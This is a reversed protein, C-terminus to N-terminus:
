AHTRVLHEIRALLDAQDFESKVIYGQAGVQEGRMRDTAASRSTVLIAPIDRLNSDARIREVFTFGDIGPMEVDVLILAYRKRKAAELGEEGSVATDVHYGASELISQELMRTTLSDDIVLVSTPRPAETPEIMRERHAAVVLEEPDLVLEPNGLPDFAAGVVIRDVGVSEPVSRVIVPRTGLLRDVAIAAQRGGAEIVIAVCTGRQRTARERRLLSALRVIPIMTGDYMVNESHATRSVESETLRRCARVADLPLAASTGAADVALAEVSALSVPVNIELTTGVNPVTEIRVEGGLKEVAVRLVDLGIGRGAVETVKSTTSIGGRLLVTLLAAADATEPVATGRARAARRIADLDLGRGDDRCTFVARKGRRAVDVVVRGASPKRAALREREPEIGHAVANRVLQVLAGQIIALVHADLRVEGGHAEFTVQKSLAQAADRATRELMTFVTAVPILRLQEATERVQALERSAHELGVSLERHSRRIVERLEELTARSQSGALLLDVLRQAKDLQQAPEHLAGIRANTEVLGELLADMDGLEARVVVPTEERVPAPAGPLAIAALQKAIDDILALMGTVRAADPRAHGDRVPALLDEIAHARDAIGTQRVVRAAGKLTHAHRLIRGVVDPTPDKELELVGKGLSEVLERAEIRFYKYPDDAM